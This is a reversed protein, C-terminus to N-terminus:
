VEAQLLLCQSSRLDRTIQCYLPIRSVSKYDNLDQESIIGNGRKMEKILLRATKGSYFGERGHDRIRTLLKQWTKRFLFIEKMGYQIM